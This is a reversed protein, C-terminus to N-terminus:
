KDDWSGRSTSPSPVFAFTSQTSIRQGAGLPLTCRSVPSATSRYTVTFSSAHRKDELCVGWALPKPSCEFIDDRLIEPTGSLEKAAASLDRPASAPISISNMRLRFRRFSSRTFSIRALRPSCAPSTQMKEAM